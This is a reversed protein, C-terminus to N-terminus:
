NQVRGTTKSSLTKDTTTCTLLDCRYCNPSSVRKTSSWCLGASTTYQAGATYKWAHCFLDLVFCATSVASISEYRGRTNPLHANKEDTIQNEWNWRHKFLSPLRILHCFQIKLTHMYICDTIRLHHLRQVWVKERIILDCGLYISSFNLVSAWKTDYKMLPHNLYEFIFQTGELIGMIKIRVRYKKLLWKKSLYEHLQSETLFIKPRWRAFRVRVHSRRVYKWGGSRHKDLEKTGRCMRKRNEDLSTIQSREYRSLVQNGAAASLTSSTRCSTCRSAASPAEAASPTATM